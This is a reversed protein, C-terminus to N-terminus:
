RVEGLGKGKEDVLLLDPGDDLGDAFNEPIFAVAELAVAGPEFKQDCVPAALADGLLDLGAGIEGDLGVGIKGLELVLLAIVEANVSLFLGAEVPDADIEGAAADAAAFEGDNGIEGRFVASGAEIADAEGVLLVQKQDVDGLGIEGGELCFEVGV